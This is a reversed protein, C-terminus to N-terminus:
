RAWPYGPSSQACGEMSQAEEASHSWPTYRRGGTKSRDSEWIFLLAEGSNQFFRGHAQPDWSIRGWGRLSSGPQLCLWGESGCSEGGSRDRGM